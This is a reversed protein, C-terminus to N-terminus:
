YEDVRHKLPRQASATSHADLQNILGHLAGVTNPDKSAGSADVLVERIEETSVLEMDWEAFLRERVEEAESLVVISDHRPDAAIVAMLTKVHGRSGEIWQFFIGSSYVLWGTIQHSANNRQAVSLLQHLDSATFNATAHSCYVLSFLLSEPGGDDTSNM